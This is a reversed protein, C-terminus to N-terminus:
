LRTLRRKSRITSIRTRVRMWRRLSAVIPAPITAAEELQLLDVLEAVGQPAAADVDKGEEVVVGEVSEGFGDVPPSFSQAAVGESEAFRM